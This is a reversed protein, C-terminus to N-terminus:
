SKVLTLELLVVRQELTELKRKLDEFREWAGSANPADIVEGFKAGIAKVAGRINCGTLKVGTLKAFHTAADDYSAFKKAGPEAIHSKIRTCLDFNQASTLTNYTKAVFKSRFIRV